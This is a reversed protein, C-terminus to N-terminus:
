KAGEKLQDILWCTKGLEHRAASIRNAYDELGSVALKETRIQELEGLAIRCAAEFHRSIDTPVAGGIPSMTKYHKGSTHDGGCSYAFADTTPHNTESM